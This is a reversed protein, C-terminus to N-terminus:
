LFTIRLFKAFNLSFFVSTSTGKKTLTEVQLNSSQLTIVTFTCEMLPIKRPTKRLKKLVDIHRFVQLRSSNFYSYNVTFCTDLLLHESFLHEAFFTGTSYGPCTIFIRPFYKLIKFGKIKSKLQKLTKESAAVPPTRYSFINKSIECFECSFM